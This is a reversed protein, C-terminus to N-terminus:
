AKVPKPIVYLYISPGCNPGSVVPVGLPIYLCWGSFNHNEKSHMISYIKHLNSQFPQGVVNHFGCSVSTDSGSHGMSGECYLAVLM